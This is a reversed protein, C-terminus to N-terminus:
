AAGDGATTLEREALLGAIRARQEASLDAVPLTLFRTGGLRLVWQGPLRDAAEVDPWAVMGEALANSTRVGDDGIDYRTALGALRWSAKVGAQTAAFPGVVALCVGGVAYVFGVAADGLMLLLVGGAIALVGIVRIALLRRRFVHKYADALAGRSNRAEFM